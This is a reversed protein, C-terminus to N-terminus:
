SDDFPEFLREGLGFTFLNRDSDRLHLDRIYVHRLHTRFMRFSM